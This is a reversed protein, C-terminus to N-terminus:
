QDSKDLYEFETEKLTVTLIEEMFAEIILQSKECSPKIKM